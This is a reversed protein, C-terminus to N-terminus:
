FFKWEILELEAFLDILMRICDSVHFYTKDRLGNGLIQLEKDNLILSNLLILFIVMLIDQICM